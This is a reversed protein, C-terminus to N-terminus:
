KKKPLWRDFEEKQKILEEKAPVKKKLYILNMVLWALVVLVWLLLWFRASLYLARSERFTLLLFGILSSTWGWVLMKQWFKKLPGQVKVKHGYIAVALAGGFLLLLAIRLPWSFGAEPYREFLYSLSFLKSLDM